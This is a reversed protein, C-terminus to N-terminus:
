CALQSCATRHMEQQLFCHPRLLADSTRGPTQSAEAAPSISFHEWFYDFKSSLLAAFGVLACLFYSVRSLRRVPAPAVGGFAGM